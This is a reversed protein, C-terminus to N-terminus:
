GETLFWHDGVRVVPITNDSRGTLESLPVPPQEWTTDGVIMLHIAGNVARVVARSGDGTVQPELADYRVELTVSENPKLETKLGQVFGDLATGIMARQDQRENPAFFAALQDVWKQRVDDNKINPDKLARNLTQFYGDVANQPSVAGNGIPVDTTTMGAPGCASLLVLLAGFLAVSLWLHRSQMTM